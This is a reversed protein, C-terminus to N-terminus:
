VERERRVREIMVEIAALHAAVRVHMPRATPTETTVLHGTYGRQYLAIPIGEGLKRRSVNMNPHIVGNVAIEGEIEAHPNIPCVQAVQAVMERGIPDRDRVQEYLYFGESEWDEHLDIVADFVRGAIFRKLIDIEPIDDRLFAWNVDVQQANLRAKHIYNWPCLCPIVDFRMGDAWAQWGRELFALAAEVGAPEDGHTGGNIYLAPADKRGVSACLVPLGNVEGLVRVDIGSIAHVRRIVENYDRKEM